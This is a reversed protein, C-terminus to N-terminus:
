TINRRRSWPAIWSGIRTIWEPTSNKKIGILNLNKTFEDVTNVQFFHQLCMVAISIKTEPTLDDSHVLDCPVIQFTPTRTRDRRDPFSLNDLKAIQKLVRDALLELLLDDSVFKKYDEKTLFIYSRQVLRSENMYVILAASEPLLKQPEFFTLQICAIGALNAHKLIENATSLKSM